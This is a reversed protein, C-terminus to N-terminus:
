LRSSKDDWRRPPASVAPADRLSSFTQSLGRSFRFIWAEISQVFSAGQSMLFRRM